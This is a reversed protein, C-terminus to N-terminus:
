FPSIPRLPSPRVRGRPRAESDPKPALDLMEGHNLSCAHIRVSAEHPLPDPDPVAHLALHPAEATSHPTLM